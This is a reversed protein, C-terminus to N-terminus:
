PNRQRGPGCILGTAVLPIAKTFGAKGQRDHSVSNTSNPMIQPEEKKKVRMAVCANPGQDVAQIRTMTAAMVSTGNTRQCRWVAASRDCHSLKSPM